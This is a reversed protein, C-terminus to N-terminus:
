PRVDRMPVVKASDDPPLLPVVARAALEELGDVIWRAYHREIMQVSTDHLAAVLRIPLNNRIGRVISSHRLAYPIVDPMGARERIADWPRTLESPSHWRGRGTRRWENGSVQVHRWRELLYDDAPRRRAVSALADLADQGVQVAVSGTKKGRGKRAVPVLLRGKDAQYDAVRLRVVQSFRAGTAALVVVLRYLDGEWAQEADIERSALLLRTVQADTLIQNDRARDEEEEIDEARLGFRIADVVSAPLRKRNAEYCANLAARLDNLLRQRTTSKLTEPLGDRWDALDSDELRHMEMSALPAPPIEEQRGRAKQGLVYRSLRYFADSRVSRDKRKSERRDRDEIYERVADAVSISAATKGDGIAARKARHARAVDCAQWFTLVKIGDPDSTDDAAGIAEIEYSQEGIYHRAVWTGGGRLRRYGLHLGREIARYYPKGRPKLKRRAEKSDLTADKLRRAM